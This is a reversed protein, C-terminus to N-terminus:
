IEAKTIKLMLDGGKQFEYNVQLVEVDFGNSAFNAVIPELYPSPQCDLKLLPFIRVQISIKLLEYISAVHFDL